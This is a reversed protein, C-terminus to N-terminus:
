RPPLVARMVVADVGEAQYYGPRLGIPEFGFRRYLTQAGDDDARVELIVSEAGAAIAADMLDRLMTSAHGRRRAAPDVGITMLHSEGGLTMGAYGVLLAEVEVAVYRRGPASLEDELIGRTWAGLGFLEAELELVRDIDEHRLTRLVPDPHAPGGEEPPM